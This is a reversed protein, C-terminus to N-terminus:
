AGSGGGRRREAAARYASVTRDDSLWYRRHEEAGLRVGVRPGARVQDQRVADGASVWLLSRGSALDRGSDAGTLALCRALNAPGRALQRDGRATPRRARALEVGQVVEGARLLVAAAHGKRECVVNVCWHMGYTFYVYAHGPRGFMVANRPTRGRFAHSAPDATGEYAEVESLRIATTGEASRHWVIRGLLDRAVDEVPRDFFARTLRDTM